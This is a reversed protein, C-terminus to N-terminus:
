ATLKCKHVAVGEVVGKGPWVGPGLYVKVSTVEEHEEEKDSWQGLEAWSFASESSNLQAIADAMPLRKARFLYRVYHDFSEVSSPPKDLLPDRQAGAQPESAVFLAEGALTHPLTSHCWQGFLNRSRFVARLRRNVGACAVLDVKDHLQLLICQLCDPPLTTFDIGELNWEM